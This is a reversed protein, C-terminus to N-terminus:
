TPDVPAAGALPPEGNPAASVPAEGSKGPVTWLAVNAAIVAALVLMLVAQKRPGGKRWILIAGGVLAIAVLVLLSLVTAM